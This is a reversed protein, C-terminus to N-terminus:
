TYKQTRKGAKDFPDDDGSASKSTSKSTSKSAGSTRSADKVTATQSSATSWGSSQETRQSGGQTRTGSALEVATLFDENRAARDAQARDYERDYLEQLYNSVNTQRDQQLRTLTQALQDSLLTRQQGIDQAQRNAEQDVQRLAQARQADNAALTSLTYSSRGMGRELADLEIRARAQDFAANQGARERDLGALIGALQQSLALDQQQQQQRAAEVAAAYEPAYRQQAISLLEEQTKPTYASSALGQLLRRLLDEDLFRSSLQWDATQASSTSASNSSSNSTTTAM